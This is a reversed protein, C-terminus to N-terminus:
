RRANTQFRSLYFDCDACYLANGVTHKKRCLNCQTAKASAKIISTNYTSISVKTPIVHNANTQNNNFDTITTSVTPSQGEPGGKTGPEFSVKKQIPKMHYVNNLPSSHNMMPNMPTQQDYPNMNPTMEQGPFPVRQYAPQMIFGNQPEPSQIMLQPQKQYMQQGQFMGIRNANMINNIHQQQGASTSNPLQHVFPYQIPQQLNTPYPYGAANNRVIASNQPLQIYASQAGMPSLAQLPIGLNSLESGQNGVYDFQQMSPGSNNFQNKKLHQQVGVIAISEPKKQMMMMMEQFQENRPLSQSQLSPFVQQNTITLPVHQELTQYGFGDPQQETKPQNFNYPLENLQHYSQTPPSMYQLPPSHLTEHPPQIPVPTDVQDKSEDESNNDNNISKLVRELIPNPVFTYDEEDNATAVLIVQDCFSVSKKKTRKGVNALTNHMVQNLMEVERLEEQLQSQPVEFKIQNKKKDVIAYEVEEGNDMRKITHPTTSTAPPILLGNMGTRVNVRKSEGPLQIMSQESRSSLDKVNPVEATKSEPQIKKLAMQKIQLEKLWNESTYVSDPKKDDLEKARLAEQRLQLHALISTCGQVTDLSDTRKIQLNQIENLQENLPEFNISPPPPPFDESAQRSHCTTSPPSPYPPLEMVSGFIEPIFHDVEDVTDHKLPVQHIPAQMIDCPKLPSQEHHVQACTIITQCSDESMSTNSSVNSILSMNAEHFPKIQEHANYFGKQQNKLQMHHEEVLERTLASTKRLPPPPPIKAVVLQRVSGHFSKRMLKSRELSPNVNSVHYELHGESLYGSQSLTGLKSSVGFSSDDVTKQQQAAEEKNPVDGAGESLDPMSRNKRRILGGMLLKRRIKHQKKGTKSDKDKKEDKDEKHKKLTDKANTLAQPEVDRSSAKSRDESRSRKEKSEKSRGFIGRSERENRKTEIPEIALIQDDHDVLKLSVKKKPLTAYIEINKTATEQLMEKSNQRQIAKEKSNQRGHRPGNLSNTNSQDKPFDSGKEILIRRYLSRARMVCTNHKMRAFTMTHPNSYPANMAARAKGAAANCLVLATEFDHAEEVLKSKELLQDAELCLKECDGTMTLSEPIKALQMVPHKPPYSDTSSLSYSDYGADYFQGNRTPSPPVSTNRKNMLYMYPNDLTTSSSSSASNRDGSWNGSDRRRPQNLHDPISLGDSNSPNSSVSTSDASLSRGLQQKKAMQSEIQSRSIYEKEESSSSSNGSSTLIKNPSNFFIKEQIVNLNQYQANM